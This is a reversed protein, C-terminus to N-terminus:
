FDITSPKDTPQQMAKILAETRDVFEGMLEQLKEIAQDPAYHEGLFLHLERNSTSISQLCNNSAIGMAVWTAQRLMIKRQFGEDKYMEMRDDADEGGKNILDLHQKVKEDSFDKNMESIQTWFQAVTQLTAQAHKMGKVCCDLASLTSRELRIQTDEHPKLVSAKKLKDLMMSQLQIRKQRLLDQIKVREDFYKNFEHEDTRGMGILTTVFKRGLSSMKERAEDEQKQADILEKETIEIEKELEDIAKEIQSLENTTDNRVKIEGQVENYIARATESTEGYESALATVATEMEDAKTFVNGFEMIAFKEKGKLLYRCASIYSQNISVAARQFRQLMRVSHDSLKTVTISLDNVKGQLLPFKAVGLYAVRLSLSLISTQASILSYNVDKEISQAQKKVLSSEKHPAEFLDFEEEEIEVRVSVIKTKSAM